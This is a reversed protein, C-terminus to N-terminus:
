NYSIQNFKSINFSKNKQSKIKSICNIKELLQRKLIMELHHNVQETSLFNMLAYPVVKGRAITEYKRGSLANTASYFPNLVGKLCIIWEWHQPRFTLSMLRNFKSKRLNNIKESSNTIEIIIRRHAIFRTLM